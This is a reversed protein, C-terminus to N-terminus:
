WIILSSQRMSSSHLLRNSGEFLSPPILCFMVGEVDPLLTRVSTNLFSRLFLGRMPHQIGKCFDLLDSLYSPITAPDAKMACSACIIMLYLRPLVHGAHQTVCYLSDYTDHGQSVYDQFFYQVVVATLMSLVLVHVLSVGPSLDLWVPLQQLHTFVEAYLNSYNKPNHAASLEALMDCAAKLVLRVDDQEQM